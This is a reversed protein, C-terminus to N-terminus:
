DQDSDGAQSNVRVTTSLPDVGAQARSDGRAASRTLARRRACPPALRTAGRRQPAFSHLWQSCGVGPNM